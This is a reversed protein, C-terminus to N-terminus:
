VLRRPTGRRRLDELLRVPEPAKGLFIMAALVYPRYSEMREEELGDLVTVGPAMGFRDALRAMDEPPGSLLPLEQGRLGEVGGFRHILYLIMVLGTDTRVRLPRQHLVKEGFLTEGGTLDDAVVDPMAWALRPDHVEVARLGLMEAAAAFALFRGGPRCLALGNQFISVSYNRERLERLADAVACIGALEQASKQTLDTLDREYLGSLDLIRLEELIEEIMASM